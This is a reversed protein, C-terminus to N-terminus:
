AACRRVNGVVPVLSCRELRSSASSAGASVGSWGIPARWNSVPNRDIVRGEKQALSLVSSILTIERRVSGTAVDQLRRDRWDAVHTEYLAGSRVKAVGNRGLLELRIIEWHAGRKQPAAKRAYRDFLEGLTMAEDVKNTNLILYEERAAWDQAERKSAFLRSKRVRQRVIFARWGNKHKRISAVKRARAHNIRSSNCIKATM